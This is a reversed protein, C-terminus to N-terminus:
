ALSGRSNKNKISIYSLWDSALRAAVAAGSTSDVHDDVQLVVQEFSESLSIVRQLVVYSRLEVTLWPQSAALVWPQSAAHDRSLQPITVASSSGALPQSAAEEHSLHPITKNMTKM